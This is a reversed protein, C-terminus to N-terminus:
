RTKRVLAVREIGAFDNEMRVLELSRSAHVMERVTDAQGFGMEMVLHGGPTLFEPVFRLLREHFETGVPGSVFAVHPEHERLEPALGAHQADSVYPPNAMVVDVHGALDVLVDAFDGCHFELRELVRHHEANEHALSLADASIDCAVVTAQPLALAATVALCGSGTGIDVILPEPSDQVAELALEVIIESEPRPILARVDCRFVHGCFETQGLIYQTPERAARRRVMERYAALADPAVAEDYRAYLDIRECTLAAALLREAELRPSQIGKSALFEKTWNILRLPTWTEETM